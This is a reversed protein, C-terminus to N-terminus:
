RKANEPTRDRFTLSAADAIWEAIAEIDRRTTRKDRRHGDRTDEGYAAGFHVEWHCRGNEVVGDCFASPGGLSAAAGLM